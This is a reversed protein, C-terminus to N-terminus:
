AAEMGANPFTLPTDWWYTGTPTKSPPVVVYGGQGRYDVQPLLATTNGMGAVPVFYHRGRPTLALGLIPPFDGGDMYEGLAIVGAPGDADFVDFRVGTPIGINYLPNVKWWARIQDADASADKFGHATAPRKEGPALPFVPLQLTDAYWLAANLLAGPAALQAKKQDHAQDVLAELRAAETHDGRTAADLYQRELDTFPAPSM